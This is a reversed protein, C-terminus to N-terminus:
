EPALRGWWREVHFTKYVILVKPNKALFDSVRIDNVGTDDAYISTLSALPILPDIDLIKSRDAKLTKLQAFKNLASVDSVDTDSIDLYRVERHDKIASLDKVGTKGAIIM